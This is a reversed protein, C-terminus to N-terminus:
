IQTRAHAIQGDSISIGDIRGHKDKPFAMEFSGWGCGIDLVRMGPQLMLKMERPLSVEEFGLLVGRYFRGWPEGSEAAKEVAEQGATSVVSIKSSENGVRPSDDCGALVVHLLAIAFTVQHFRFLPCRRHRLTQCEAETAADMRGSSIIGLYEDRPPREVSRDSDQRNSAEPIWPRQISM